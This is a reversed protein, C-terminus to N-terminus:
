VKQGGYLIKEALRKKTSAYKIDTLALLFLGTFMLYRTAGIGVLSQNQMVTGLLTDNGAKGFNLGLSFVAYFDFKQLWLITVINSFISILPNSQCVAFGSLLAPGFSFLALDVFCFWNKNRGNVYGLVLLQIHFVARFLPIWEMPLMIGATSLFLFLYLTHVPLYFKRGLKRNTKKLKRPLPILENLRELEPLSAKGQMFHLFRETLKEKATSGKKLSEQYLVLAKQTEKHDLGLNNQRIIWADKYNKLKMCADSVLLHGPGYVERYCNLAQTYYETAEIENKRLAYFDGLFTYSKGIEAHLEGLMEKKAKLIEKLRIVRSDNAYDNLIKEGLTPKGTTYVGELDYSMAVVIKEEARLIELPDESCFSKKTKLAMEFLPIAQQYQNQRLLVMACNNLATAYEMSNEGFHKAIAKRDYEAFELADSYNEQLVLTKIMRKVTESMAKYDEGRRMKTRYIVTYIKEAAAYNRNTTLFQAMAQQVKEDAATRSYFDEIFDIDEDMLKRIYQFLTYPHETSLQLFVDKMSLFDKMAHVDELLVLQYPVEDIMRTRSDTTIFFNVINRRYRNEGDTNQIYRKHVTNRIYDHFFDLLEGKSMLHSSLNNLCEVINIYHIQHAEGLLRLEQESLGNRSVYIHGLLFQVVKKGFDNELRDFVKELLEEINVADMYHNIKERLEEHTANLMLEDLLTKLFMPNGIHGSYKGYELKLILKEVLNFKDFWAKNETILTALASDLEKGHAALYDRIIIGIEEKDLSQLRYATNQQISLKHFGETTTSLIFIVKGNFDGSLWNLDQASSELQNLGDIVIVMTSDISKLVEILKNKVATKNRKTNEDLKDYIQLEMLLHNILDAETQSSAGVYHEIIAKGPHNEKYEAAWNALLASKGTGSEGWVVFPGIGEDAHSTLRHFLNTNKLYYKRRSLAFSAHKLQEMEAADLEDMPFQEDIAKKLVLYIAEGLEVEGKFNEFVPHGSKKITEKLKKLRSRKWEEEEEITLLSNKQTYYAEDGLFFFARAESENAFVGEIIEMETISMPEKRSKQILDRHSSKFYDDKELVDAEPTWGYRQGLINIFFPRCRKIEDLCLRITRGERSQEETIGWRLDVGTFLIGRKRCYEALRPFTRRIIYDRETKLDIFTSSVFVRIERQECSSSQM